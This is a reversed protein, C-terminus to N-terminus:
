KDLTDGNMSRVRSCARCLAAQKHFFRKSVTEDYNGCDECLMFDPTKM